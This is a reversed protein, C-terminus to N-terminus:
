WGAYRGSARAAIWFRLWGASGGQTRALRAGSNRAHRRPHREPPQRAL